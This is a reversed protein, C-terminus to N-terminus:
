YAAPIFLWMWWSDGLIVALLVLYIFVFLGPAVLGYEKGWKKYVFITGLILVLWIGIQIGCFYILMTTMGKVLLPTFKPIVVM